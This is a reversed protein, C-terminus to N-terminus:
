LFPPMPGLFLQNGAKGTISASEKDMETDDKLKKITNAEDKGIISVNEGYPL